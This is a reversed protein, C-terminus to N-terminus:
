FDADVVKLYTRVCQPKETVSLQELAASVIFCSSNTIPRLGHTLSHSDLM